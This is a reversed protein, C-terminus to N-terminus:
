ELKISIETAKWRVVLTDMTAAKINIQRVLISFIM